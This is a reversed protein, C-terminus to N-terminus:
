LTYGMQLLWKQVKARDENLANELEPLTNEYRDHTAVIDNVAAQLSDQMKSDCLDVIAPIWKKEVVLRKVDEETLTAFKDMVAKTLQKILANIEKKIKAASDDIKLWDKWHPIIAQM